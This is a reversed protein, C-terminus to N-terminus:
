RWGEECRAAGVLLLPLGIFWVLSLVLASPWFGWPLAVAGLAAGALYSGAGGIVGVLGQQWVRWSWLWRLSHSLSLVFGVWLLGLWWPFAFFEFLGLGWLGGDLAIGCLVLPWLQGDRRRSPSFVFHLSLLLWLPWLLQVRVALFWYLNFGLLHALPWLQARKLAVM